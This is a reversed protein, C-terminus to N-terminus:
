DGAAARVAGAAAHRTLVDDYLGAVRAAIAQCSFRERATRRGERGRRRREAPDSAAQVLASALSRGDDVPVLWGNEGNRVIRAPGHAACAVVPLGCAMAEVLALGFAEEASPLVLVDSAALADPLEEHPRWGALFVNRVGLRRITAAPHEGEWEGPHGGVVVLAVPRGLRDQVHRHAAILLPLRKVATFRGVYVIVPESDLAALQDPRYAVSGPVGTEDWGRPAECLWRRWFARRADASAARPRFRDTSVGNPIVHIRSADLGLLSSAESEAGPPAILAACSHAWACLREDWAQAHSWEPPPGARIRRLLALETGHLHGVVPVAPVARRAAENAPTLHHLHLVDVRDAGVGALARAWAAVLRECAADDIAAFVRDPVGPRDEYSPQFPVAGTRPDALLSAPTYDVSTVDPGAFFTAAHTADGPRGLSGSAISVDFGSGPLSEALARVVQASGGRPFFFLGM